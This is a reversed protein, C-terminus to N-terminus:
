APREVPVPVKPPQKSRPAGKPGSPNKPVRSGGGLEVPGTPAKPEGNPKAKVPNVPDGIGFFPEETQHGQQKPKNPKQPRQEQPHHVEPLGEDPQDAHPKNLHSITGKFGKLPDKAEGLSTSKHHSLYSEVSDWTAYHYDGNAIRIADFQTPNTAEVNM